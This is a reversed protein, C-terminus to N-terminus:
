AQEEGDARHTEARLAPVFRRARRIPVGIQLAVPGVEGVRRELPRLLEGALREVGLLFRDVREVFRDFAGLVLHDM